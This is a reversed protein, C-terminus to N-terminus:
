YNLLEFRYKQQVDPYKEHDVESYFMTYPRAFIQGKKIDMAADEYLAEYIVLRENTETHTANGIIRYTYIPCHKEEKWMNDGYLEKLMNYRKFHKVIDGRNFM